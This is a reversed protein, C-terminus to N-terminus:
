FVLSIFNFTQPIFNSFLIESILLKFGSKIPNIKQVFDFLNKLSTEIRHKVKGDAPGNNIIKQLEILKSETLLNDGNVVSKTKLELEDYSHVFIDAKDYDYERSIVKSSNPLFDGSCM